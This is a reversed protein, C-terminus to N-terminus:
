PRRRHHARGTGEVTERGAGFAELLSEEDFPQVTRGAGGTEDVDVNIYFDEQRFQVSVVYLVAEDDAQYGERIRSIGFFGGATMWFIRQKSEDVYLVRGKFLLNNRRASEASQVAFARYAERISIGPGDADSEVRAGAIFDNTYLYPLLDRVDTGAVLDDNFLPMEEADEGVPKCWLHGDADERIDTVTVRDGETLTKRRPIIRRQAQVFEEAFDGLLDAEDRETAKLREEKVNRTAVEVKGDAVSFAVSRNETLDTTSITVIGDKCSVYGKGAYSFPSIPRNRRLNM